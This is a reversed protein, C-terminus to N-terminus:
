KKEILTKYFKRNRVKINLRPLYLIMGSHIKTANSYIQSVTTRLIVNSREPRDTSMIFIAPHTELYYKLLHDSLPGFRNRRKAPKKTLVSMGFWGVQLIFTSLYPNMPLDYIVLQNAEFIQTGVDGM